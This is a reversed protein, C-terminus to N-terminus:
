HLPSVPELFDGFKELREADADPVLGDSNIVEGLILNGNRGVSQKHIKMLQPLSYIGNEHEPGARWFWGHVGNTGRLTAM